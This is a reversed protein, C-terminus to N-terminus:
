YLPLPKLGVKPQKELFRSGSNLIEFFLKLVLAVELTEVSTRRYFYTDFLPVVNLGSGFTRIYNFEENEKKPLNM